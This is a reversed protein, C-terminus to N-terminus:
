PTVLNTGLTGFLFIGANTWIIAWCRCPSLGIDSGIITLKKKKLHAGSPTLSNIGILVSKSDETEFLGQYIADIIM